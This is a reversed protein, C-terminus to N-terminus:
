SSLNFDYDLSNQQKQINKNPILMNQGSNLNKNKTALYNSLDKRTPSRKVDTPNVGKNYVIKHADVDGEEENLPDFM